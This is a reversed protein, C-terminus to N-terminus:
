EVTEESIYYQGYKTAYMINPFIYSYILQYINLHFQYNSWVVVIQLYKGRVSCIGQRSSFSNRIVPVINISQSVATLYKRFVNKTQSIFKVFLSTLLIHKDTILM